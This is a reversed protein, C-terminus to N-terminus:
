ALFYTTLTYLVAPVLIILANTAIAISLTDSSAETGGHAM